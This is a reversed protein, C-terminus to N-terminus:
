REAALKEIDRRASPLGPNDAYLRHLEAACRAENAASGDEHLVLRLRAILLNAALFELKLTKRLSVLDAWIPDTPAPLAM